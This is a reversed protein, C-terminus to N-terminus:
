VTPVARFLTTQVAVTKNPDTESQEFEILYPNRHGYVNYISFNWSSEFRKRKKVTYTLAIDMRHYSPMRDANRDTYVFLIEDDIQYKGKPFTVANGTSYVFTSSVTLKDNIDYIAVVSIDHLRDQKALYWQNDNIGEIKKETKSITYGVWGGLKGVKKKILFETGYSRGIGYLLEGEIFENAQTNAGNRYDIQNQMWKYYTEISLEYKSEKLNKFWGVSVQDAIEPKVNYTTPLWLDTPSTSVTNSILHINQINRSYGGKVSASKGYLYSVFLRPELNVYNKVLSGAAFNLTDYIDGEKDYLYTNKGNGIVSFSTFRMGALVNIKENLALEDSVFISNEFGLKPDLKMPNVGSGESAEVQGPIVTHYISNLGFTWKNRTNAFYQFEQKFNYDNLVSGISITFDDTKIGIEYLYNSVIFSTNSFLKSNIIHNWRVTGTANGWEIGFQPIGLVDRGFYGSVYVQDKEGFRYNLKTNLDYFFLKTTRLNPDKALKLFLDAYTRRGAILFSGKDKVIPGEVTLRSAILGIGGSTGFRRTNGENMKIDLVSALRGGYQAPQTGKYLTATKIVDSNFTSFFGLLHSANYVPAEDLLILNQDAAGGRVYFGSNGDGASKIGPLLQLTKVIDKEGFIVPIKNIENMDLKEVGMQAQKVNQDKKASTAEVVGLEQVIPSLEINLKLDAKLDVTRRKVNYTTYSFSLEYKGEPLTLSYFGYENSIAGVGSVGVPRISVGIMSEGNLSDRISGSVTYKSQSFGGFSIFLTFLLVYRM